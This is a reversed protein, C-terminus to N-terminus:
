SPSSRSGALAVRRLYATFGILLFDIFALGTWFAILRREGAVLRADCYKGEALVYISLYGVLTLATAVVLVWAVRRGWRASRAARVFPLVRGRDPRMLVVDFPYVALGIAALGLGAFVGQLVPSGAACWIAAPWSCNV